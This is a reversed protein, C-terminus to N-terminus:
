VSGCEDPHLSVHSMEGTLLLDAAVGKLVSGGAATLVYSHAM